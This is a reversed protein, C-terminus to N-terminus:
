KGCIKNIRRVKELIGKVSSSKVISWGSLINAGADICMNINDETLGGDVEVIINRNMSDFYSKISNIKSIIKNDFIQGGYGVVVGMIVVWEIKNEILLKILSEDISRHDGIIIGPQANYKKIMNIGSVLQSKDEFSREHLAIKDCGAQIYEEIYSKRNTKLRHPSEVM